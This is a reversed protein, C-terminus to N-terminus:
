APVEFRLRTGGDPRRGIELSGGRERALDDLLRLGFHGTRGTADDIGRGDDTVELVARGDVVEIALRVWGAQAHELVNRTAEAAARYVAAAADDDMAPDGEIALQTRLGAARLPALLDTVAARLGQRHLNPPVLDVLTGRLERVTERVQEAGSRVTDRLDAGDPAREAGALAFAVGSLRQVPGDHLERAVRTRERDSADLARRLLAEREERGRELSRALSLVLPAVLLMFLVVAAVLAPAFASRLRGENATILEYPRYTEFLVREGGPARLGAYVELLKGESREFQNEPESLDSVEAESGGDRLVELEDDALDFTRGVLEPESAYLVEGDANWIKAHEVRSGFAKRGFLRDLAAQSGPEGALLARTLEPVVVARGVVTTEQRADELAEKTASRHLLLVGIAGVVLVVVVVSLAFRRVAHRVTVSSM